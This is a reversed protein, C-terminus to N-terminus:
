PVLTRTGLDAEQAGPLRGLGIKLATDDVRQVGPLASIAKNLQEKQETKPVQGSLTVVGDRVTACVQNPGPALSRDNFPLAYIEQGIAQDSSAAKSASAVPSGSRGTPTTTLDNFAESSALAAEAHPKSTGCGTLQCALPM